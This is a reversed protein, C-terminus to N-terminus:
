VKQKPPTNRREQLPVVRKKQASGLESGGRDFQNRIKGRREASHRQVGGLGSNATFEREKRMASLFQVKAPDGAHSTDRSTVGKKHIRGDRGQVISRRAKGEGLEPLRKSGKGLRRDM